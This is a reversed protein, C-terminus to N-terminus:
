PKKINAGKKIIHRLDRLADLIELNYKGLEHQYSETACKLPSSYELQGNAVDYMENFEEDTIQLVERCLKSIRNKAM